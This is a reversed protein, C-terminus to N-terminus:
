LAAMGPEPPRGGCAVDLKTHFSQVASIPYELPHTGQQAVKSAQSRASMPLKTKTAPINFPAYATPVGSATLYAGSVM